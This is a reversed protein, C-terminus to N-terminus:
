HACHAGKPDPASDTWLTGEPLPLISLPLPSLCPRDAWGKGTSPSAQKAALPCNEKLKGM